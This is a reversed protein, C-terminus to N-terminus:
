CSYLQNGQARRGIQIPQLALERSLELYKRGIELFEGRLPHRTLSDFPGLSAREELSGRAGEGGEKAANERYIILLFM